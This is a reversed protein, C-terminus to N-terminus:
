KKNSKNLDHYNFEAFRLPREDKMLPISPQLKKQLEKITTSPAKPPTTSNPNLSKDKENSM